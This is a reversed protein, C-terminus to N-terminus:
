KRERGLEPPHDDSAACPLGFQLAFEMAVEDAGHPRDDASANRNCETRDHWFVSSGRGIASVDAVVTALIRAASAARV